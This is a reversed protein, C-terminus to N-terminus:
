YRISDINNGGTHLVIKKQEILFVLHNEYNKKHGIFTHTSEKQFFHFLIM